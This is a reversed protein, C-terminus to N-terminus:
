AKVKDSFIKIQKQIKTIIAQSWPYFPKGHPHVIVHVIVVHCYM